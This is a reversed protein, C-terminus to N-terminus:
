RLHMEGHISLDVMQRSHFTTGTESCCSLTVYLIQMQQACLTETEVVSHDLDYYVSQQPMLEIEQGKLKEEFAALNRKLDPLTNSGPFDLEVQLAKRSGINKIELFLEDGNVFPYVALIPIQDGEHQAKAVLIQERAAQASKGNFICILITAAVYIATIIVMLWDTIM